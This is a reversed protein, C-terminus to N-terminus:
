CFDLWNLVTSPSPRCQLQQPAGVSAVEVSDCTFSTADVEREFFNQWRAATDNEPLRRQLNLIWCISLLNDLRQLNPSAWLVSASKVSVLQPPTLFRPCRAGGCARVVRFRFLEWSVTLDDKHVVDSENRLVSVALTRAFSAHKEPPLPACSLLYGRNASYRRSPLRGVNASFQTASHLEGQM